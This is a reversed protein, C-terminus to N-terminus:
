PNQANTSSLFLERLRSRGRSLLVRINGETMSTIAAIESLELGDAHRMRVILAQRSPLADLLSSALEEAIATDAAEEPSPTTAPAALDDALTASPRAGMHRLADLAIRRGMVMALAEPDRYDDLRDRISWLRLLTDQVVDDPADCGRPADALWRSAAARLRPGIRSALINFSNLDM